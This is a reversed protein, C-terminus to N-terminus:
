AAVCAQRRRQNRRKRRFCKPEPLLEYAWVGVKCHQGNAARIVCILDEMSSDIEYEPMDEHVALIGPFTPDYDADYDPDFDDQVSFGDTANIAHIIANKKKQDYRKVLIVVFYNTTM